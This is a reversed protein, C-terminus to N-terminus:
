WTFVSSHEVVKTEQEMFRAKDSESKTRVKM